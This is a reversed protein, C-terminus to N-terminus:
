APPDEGAPPASADEGPEPNESAAPASEAESDKHREAQRAKILQIMREKLEPDDQLTKLFPGQMIVHIKTVDAAAKITAGAMKYEVISTEGFIDGVNLEAVQVWGKNKDPKLHVSAKGEAVVHVGDVSAGKFLITQGKKFSLTKV